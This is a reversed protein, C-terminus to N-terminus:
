YPQSLRRHLARGFLRRGNDTFTSITHTLIETSTTTAFHVPGKGNESRRLWFLDTPSLFQIILKLPDGVCDTLTVLLVPICSRWVDTLVKKALLRTTSGVAPSEGPM